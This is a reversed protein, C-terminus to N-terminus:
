KIPVGNADTKADKGKWENERALRADDKKTMLIILQRLKKM